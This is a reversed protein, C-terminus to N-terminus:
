KTKNKWNKWKISNKHRKLANKGNFSLRLIKELVLM